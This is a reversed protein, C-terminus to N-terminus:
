RSANRQLLMGVQKAYNQSAKVRTGSRLVVRHEGAGLCVIERVHGPNVIASRHIRVFGLPELIDASHKMTARILVSRAGAYLRVYDGDAAIWEIEHADLLIMRAGDRARVTSGFASLTEHVAGGVPRSSVNPEGDIAPQRNRQELLKFGLSWAVLIIAYQGVRGPLPIGGEILRVSGDWRLALASPGQTLAIVVVDIVMAGLVCLLCTLVAQLRPGVATGTMRGVTGRLLGTTAMGTAAIVLKNPLMLSVPYTGLWPIMLAMAYALWVVVNVTWFTDVGRAAMLPANTTSPVGNM